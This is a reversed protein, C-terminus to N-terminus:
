GEGAPCAPGRMQEVRDDATDALFPQLGGLEVGVACRHRHEHGALAPDRLRPEPGIDDIVASRAGVRWREGPIPESGIAAADMRLAIEPWEGTQELSVAIGSIVLDLM